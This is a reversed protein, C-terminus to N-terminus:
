FLEEEKNLDSSNRIRGIVYYCCGPDYGLTMLRRGIKQLFKEDISKGSRRQSQAMKLGERLATERDDMVLGSDALERSDELEDMVSSITDSSLGKEKMARMIRSRSWNKRRSVRFFETGYRRDDLYGFELLEEITDRIDDEEYGSEKLSKELERVTRMRYNLKSLATEMCTRKPM